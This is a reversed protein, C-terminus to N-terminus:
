PHEAREAHFEVLVYIAMPVPEGALLTPQFRWERIARAASSVLAVSGNVPTLKEVRGESNLFARVGVRTGTESTLRPAHPDVHSLLDGVVVTEKRPASSAAAPALIARQIHLTMDPSQVIQEGPLNIYLARASAPLTLQLSRDSSNAGDAPPPDAPNVPVTSASPAPSAAAGDANNKHPLAAFDATISGTIASTRSALRATSAPPAGPQEEVVSSPAPLSGPVTADAPTKSGSTNGDSSNALDLHGIFQDGFHKQAQLVSGNRVVPRKIQTPVHHAAVAGKASFSPNRITPAIAPTAQQNTATVPPSNPQPQAPNGQSPIPAPASPPPVAPTTPSSHLDSPTAFPAAFAQTNPPENAVAGGPQMAMTAGTESKFSHSLLGRFPTGRLVLATALMLVASVACATLPLRFSPPHPDAKQPTSNRRVPAPASTTADLPKAPSTAGRREAERAAWKRLQQRDHDCLDLLQIGARHSECTWVVRVYVEIPDALGDLLLSVRCVFNQVLAVPTSVLLGNESLNLLMGLNGGGFAIGVLRCPAVRPYFRRETLAEPAIPSEASTFV